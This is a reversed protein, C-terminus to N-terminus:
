GGLKPAKRTGIRIKPRMGHMILVKFYSVIGEIHDSSGLSLAIGFYKDAHLGVSGVEEAVCPALAPNGKNLLRM